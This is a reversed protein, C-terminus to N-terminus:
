LGPTEGSPVEYSVHELLCANVKSDTQALDANFTRRDGLKTVQPLNRQPWEEVYWGGEPLELDSAGQVHRAEERRWTNVSQQDM